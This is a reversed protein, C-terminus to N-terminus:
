QIKALGSEDAVLEELIETRINHDQEIVCRLRLACHKACLSTNKNYGGFCDMQEGATILAYINKSM